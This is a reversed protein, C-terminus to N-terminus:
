PTVEDILGNCNSDIGDGLIDLAGPNLSFNNDDCDYGNDVFGVPSLTAVFRVSGDGYGDGDRDAYWSYEQELPPRRIEVAGALILVGFTAVFTGLVGATCALLFTWKSVNEVILIKCALVITTLSLLFIFRVLILM